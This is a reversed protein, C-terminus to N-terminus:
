PCVPLVPVSTDIVSTLTRHYLGQGHAWALADAIERAIRLRQLLDLQPARRVMFADLREAGEPHEYVIAPGRETEELSHARLIGPHQEPRDLLRFERLAAERRAKRGTEPGGPPWPYIRIRRTSGAVRTHTGVYDQYVGADDLLTTLKWQGVTLERHVPRIHLEDLARLVAKLRPRDMQGGYQDEACSQLYAVLNRDPHREGRTYVRTGAPGTLNCRVAPNSLFVAAEVYPAGKGKLAKTKALLGALRKAKRNALLLPNEVVQQNGEPWTWTWQGLDGSVTGPQSKIEVLLLQTPTLILADIENVSGDAAVFEFNSWGQFAESVPLRDRLWAIADAEWAYQSESVTTWRAM